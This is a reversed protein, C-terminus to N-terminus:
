SKGEAKAIAALAKSLAAEASSRGGCIFALERGVLKLAELLEPAAIFLAAVEECGDLKPVWALPIPRRKSDAREIRYNPGGDNVLRLSGLTHKTKNESM